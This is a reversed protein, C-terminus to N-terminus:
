GTGWSAFDRQVARLRSAVAANGASEQLAVATAPRRTLLDPHTTLGSPAVQQRGDDDHSRRGRGPALERRMGSQPVDPPEAAARGAASEHVTPALGPSTARIAM